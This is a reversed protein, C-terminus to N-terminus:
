IVYAFVSAFTRVYDEGDSTLPYPTWPTTMDCYELRVVDPEGYGDLTGIIQLGTGGFTLLIRFEAPPVDTEGPMDMPIKVISPFKM